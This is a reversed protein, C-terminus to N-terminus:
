INKPVKFEYGEGADVICAKKEDMIIFTWSTTKENATIVAIMDESMNGKWIPGEGYEKVIYKFVNQADDCVIKKDIEVPKSNVSITAVALIFSIGIKTLYNNM